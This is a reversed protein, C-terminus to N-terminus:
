DKLRCASGCWRWCLERRRAHRRCNRIFISAPPVTLRMLQDISATLGACGIMRRVWWCRLGIEPNQYEDQVFIRFRSVLDIVAEDGMRRARRGPRGCKRSLGLMIPRAPEGSASHM